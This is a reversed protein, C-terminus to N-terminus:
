FFSFLFWFPSLDEEEELCTFAPSSSSERGQLAMIEREKEWKSSSQCLVRGEGAVM